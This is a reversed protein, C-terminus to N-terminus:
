LTTKWGCLWGPPRHFSNRGHAINAFPGGDVFAPTGRLPRRWNPKLADKLLAAM